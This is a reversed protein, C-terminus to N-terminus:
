PNSHSEQLASKFPWKVDISLSIKQKLQSPSPNFLHCYYSQLNTYMSKRFFYSLKPLYSNKAKGNKSKNKNQFNNYYLWDFTIKCCYKM